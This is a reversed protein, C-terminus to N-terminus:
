QIVVVKGDAGADLPVAVTAAPPAGAEDWRKHLADLCKQQDALASYSQICGESEIYYADKAIVRATCGLAVLCICVVGIVGAALSKVVDGAGKITFPPLQFGAVLLATAADFVQERWEPKFHVVFMGALWLAAVGLQKVHKKIWEKMTM